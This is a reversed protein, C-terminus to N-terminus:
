EETFGNTKKLKEVDTVSDEFEVKIDEPEDKYFDRDGLKLEGTSDGKISGESNELVKVFSETTWPIGREDGYRNYYYRHSAMDLILTEIDRVTFM